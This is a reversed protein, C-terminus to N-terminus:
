LGLTRFALVIGLVPGRGALLLNRHFGNELESQRKNECGPHQQRRRRRGRAAGPLAFLIRPLRFLARLALLALRRFLLLM